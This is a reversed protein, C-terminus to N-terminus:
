VYDYLQLGAPGLLPLMAPVELVELSGVAQVGLLDDVAIDGLVDPEDDFAGLLELHLGPIDLLQFPQGSPELLPGQVVQGVGGVVVLEDPLDVPGLAVLGVDPGLDDPGDM